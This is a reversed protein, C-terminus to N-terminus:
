LILLSLKPSPKWTATFSLHIVVVSIQSEIWKEYQYYCQFAHLTISNLIVVILNSTYVIPCFVHVFLLFM